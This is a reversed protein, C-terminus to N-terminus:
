GCATSRWRMPRPCPWSWPWCATGVGVILSTLVNGSQAQIVTRYNDLTAAHPLWYYNGSFLTTTSEFSGVLRRVGPVASRGPGGGDGAHMAM